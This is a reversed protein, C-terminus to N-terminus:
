LVLSKNTNTITIQSVGPYLQKYERPIGFVGRNQTLVGSMAFSNNRVDPHMLNDSMTNFTVDRFQYGNNIYERLNYNEAKKEGGFMYIVLGAALLEPLM